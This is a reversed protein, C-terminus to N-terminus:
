FDLFARSEPSMPQSFIVSSSATRLGLFSLACYERRRREACRRFETVPLFWEGSCPDIPSKELATGKVPEADHDRLRTKFNFKNRIM